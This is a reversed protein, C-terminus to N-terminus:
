KIRGDAKAAARIPEYDSDEAKVFASAGGFANLVDRDTVKLFAARLKEATEPSTGKKVAWPYQFLKGSRWIVKFADKDIKGQDKLLDFFASDIAGADVQRNQVSLATVDHAGTFVVEKFDSDKPGRYVKRHKLEIGPILSGSTSNPDGFAFRVTKASKVLDDISNLPSDRHAIIYSYYFPEGKISQTVIAQAGGQHNAIVYTLPGYYALDVKGANMGEVVANYDPYSALEVPRGLERALHDRLKELGAKTNGQTLAPIVAVKFPEGAPATQATKAGNGGCGALLLLAVALSIWRAPQLRFPRTLRHRQVRIGRM